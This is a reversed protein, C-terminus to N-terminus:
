MSACDLAPVNAGGAGPSGAGVPVEHGVTEQEEVGPGDVGPHPLRLEGGERFPEGHRRRVEGAEPARLRGAVDQRHTQGGFPRECANPSRPM